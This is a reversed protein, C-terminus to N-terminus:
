DKAPSKANYMRYLEELVDIWQTYVGTERLMKLGRENVGGPTSNETLFMEMDETCETRMFSSLAENMLCCYDLTTKFALGKKMGWKVYEAVLAYYPVMLGTIPGLVNLEKEDEAIVPTGILSLLEICEPDKGYILVPGSRLAAFPLPIIRVVKEAPAYCSRTDELRTLGTVQIIKQERRFRLEKLLARLQQPLVAIFLIDAEDAAQQNSRSISIREPFLKKLEDAAASNKHVSLTIHGCFEPGSCIGRVIASTIAGTGIFGIKAGITM